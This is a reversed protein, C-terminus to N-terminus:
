SAPRQEAIDSEIQAVVKRPLVEEVRNVSHEAIHELLHRLYAYPNIGNLKASGILSYMAAAREGGGMPPAFVLHRPGPSVKSVHSGANTGGVAQVRDLWLLSKM